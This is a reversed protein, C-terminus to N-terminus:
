GSAGMQAISTSDSDAETDTDPDPDRKGDISVPATTNALFVSPQGEDDTHDPGRAERAVSEIATTSQSQSGSGSESLRLFWSTGVFHFRVGRM